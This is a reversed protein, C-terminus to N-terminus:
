SPQKCEVVMSRGLTTGGAFGSSGGGFVAASEASSQLINYGRTGCLDGAKELCTGWSRALGSCNLSYAPKGDAGYTTSSSACASLLACAGLAIMTKM